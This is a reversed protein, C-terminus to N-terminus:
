RLLLVRSKRTVGGAQVQFFYVGPPVRQGRDDDGNWLVGTSANGLLQRVVRGHVDYVKGKFPGTLNTARIVTGASSLFAPNPYVGFSAGQAVGGGGGSSATPNYRNLGLVTGIWVDGTVKDVIVSHVDNSLLPSNDVTFVEVSGNPRRHFLGGGTALWVGGEADLAIPHVAGQSSPSPTVVNELRSRSARSYRSLGGSTAIWVDDGNFEIGWADDDLLGVTVGPITKSFHALRTNLTPDVFVDVGNGAYAVWMEFGPGPAFAIARIQPGSMAQGGQPSFNARSDDFGVRNIGLPTIVGLLRTDLGFYRNGVSDRASSWIFTNREDFNGESPDWYHSFSPPETWPDLHALGAGWQGAWLTGDKEALLGFLGTTGYFTTDITAGFQPLYSRWNAGDFRSLGRDRTTFFVTSGVLQMGQIWNGTPGASQYFQWTAGDWRWLGELNGAWFGGSPDVDTWASVPFGGGGLNQWSGAVGDWRYVGSLGGAFMEGGRATLRAVTTGGLGTEELTWTGTQGGRYVHGGAVCWVDSGFGKIAQAELNGLGDVRRQWVVGEDTKTVYVGNNTAVYTSDAVHAIDNIVDSAFPSPNVGDPWVAFLTFGDFLALGRRTGVWMGSSSYELATVTDSPLGEFTTLSRWTGNSLLVSVGRGGTGFWTGGQPDLEIEVINNSGLEGVAKAYRTFRGTAPDYRHLGVSSAAWVGSATARVSNLNNANNYTDWRAALAPTASRVAGLLVLILLALWPHLRQTM